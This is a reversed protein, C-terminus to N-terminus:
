AAHERSVEILGERALMDLLRHVDAACQERDVDYEAVISQVIDRVQRPRQLM